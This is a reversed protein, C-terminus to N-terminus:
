HHSKSPSLPVILSALNCTKLALNRPPIRLLTRRTLKATGEGGAEHAIFRAVHREIGVRLDPLRDCVEEICEPAHAETLVVSAPSDRPYSAPSAQM